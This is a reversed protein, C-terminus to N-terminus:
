RAPEQLLPLIDSNITDKSLAGDHRYLIRGQRDIVFSTPLGEVGWAVAATGDADIGIKRFPNGMQTLFRERDQASDMFNVGYLPVTKALNLLLPHEKACPACWSAFFSVISIKGRLDRDSLGEIAFAPMSSLPSSATNQAANSGPGGHLRAAAITLLTLFLLLPIIYILRHLMQKIM